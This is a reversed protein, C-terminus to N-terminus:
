QMLKEKYLRIYNDAMIKMDYHNIAFERINGREVDTTQLNMIIDKIAECDGLSVFQGFPTPATEATGGCDFGIVPTGCSLAELCTTPFNEMTSCIIFADALSYWEALEIQNKTREVFYINESYKKTEGMGLMVFAVDSNKLMDGLKLIYKGGKRDDMINPAVALIIKKDTVSLLKNTKTRPYFVEQTDIGNNIVRIDNDKLFSQKVKAALWQSPTVITFEYNALLRKKDNYMRKTRDFWLSKPYEKIAKCNSCGSLWNTCEYTYGCKGTYMYECHFTWVVPIKLMKIYELIKFENVFYAHLEHIHILDPQFEDIFSILRKTSIPSYYGNLGTIRSLGAHIYTEFDLGFKYIGVEDVRDGRGYCVAVEHGERKLSEFLSYVIKGTSSHKCNVDVLLIKM